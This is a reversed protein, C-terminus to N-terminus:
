QGMATLWANKAADLAQPSAPFYGVDQIISDVNTLYYNIFSAVQPKEDMITATSYIFLPRALLYDGSEASEFSPETGDLALVRLDNQYEDYYAYGFYGIAYPSGMVGQALVNDDESMQPNPKLALEKDSDLVVETFFDFTGSDTGPIYLQIDEAPWSPDVDSWQTAAGSFIAALQESSLGEVFDNERSVVVSLADTGVRFEIPTRGIAECNAVEEDKIARSANSIDTEGATCFREFGAGSGISDITIQGTYGEKTFKEAMAESLPYVTSSGATIIQGTVTAPDVAPLMVGGMAAEAPAETPPVATPMAEVPAATTPEATPEAPTCAALASVLAIGTLAALFRRVFM